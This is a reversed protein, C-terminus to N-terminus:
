QQNTKPKHILLICYVTHKGPTLRCYTNQMYRLDAGNNKSEEATVTDGYFERGM